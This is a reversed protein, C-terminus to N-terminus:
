YYENEYRKTELPDVFERKISSFMLDIQDNDRGKTEPVMFWIFFISLFLFFSFIYGMFFNIKKTLTPILLSIFFNVMWNTASCVAMSLARTRNPFLESIIVFTVPGSTTAFFIIYICTVIIMGWVTKENNLLFSGITSYLTMCIFM